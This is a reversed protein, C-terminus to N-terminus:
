KAYEAEKDSDPNVPYENGNRLADPRIPVGAAGTHEPASHAAVPIWISRTVHYVLGFLIGTVFIPIITPLLLTGARVHGRERRGWRVVWVEGRTRRAFFGRFFVEEVFPVWVGLALASLLIVAGDGALGAPLPEPVLADLGLGSVVAAYAATFALSGLLAAAALLFSQGQAPLRIGVASWSLRYKRVVILWVSILLVSEAIAALWALSSLNGEWREATSAGGVALFFLGFAGLSVASALAMDGVGWRAKGYERGIM